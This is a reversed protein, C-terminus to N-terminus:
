IRNRTIEEYSIEYKQALAELTTTPLVYVPDKYGTEIKITDELKKSTLYCIEKDKPIKRQFNLISYHSERSGLHLAPISSKNLYFALKATVQYNDGVVIRDKCLEVIAPIKKEKWDVVENLRNDELSNINSFYTPFALIVKFSTVLLISLSAFCLVLKKYPIMYKTMLIIFALSCSITWNAEIQNRFSMFFLFILFGFSNFVLIREFTDKFRNKHWLFCILFFNLFGMLFVQGSIYDLINMVDFHKETRGTLHFQFSVFDHKYQWYMHPFYLAVVGLAIFWFSKRKLFDLNALVTLLVILLGHYKSYFMGTISFMVMFSFLSNDNFLYKKISWFFLASFFMLPTDPLAFIGSFNILPLSFVLAFFILLDKKPRLLDWCLWITGVLFVQSMFRVAFENHGWLFGGLWISLAVMPPHDFYGWSLYQSYLWYYAEDFSLELRSSLIVNPLILLGLFILYLYWDQRLKIAFKEM